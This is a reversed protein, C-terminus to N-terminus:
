SPFCRLSLYICICHTRRFRAVLASAIRTGHTFGLLLQLCEDRKWCGPAIMESLFSIQIWWFEFLFRRLDFQLFIYAGSALLNLCDALNANPFRSNSFNQLKKELNSAILWNENRVIRCRFDVIPSESFDGRASRTKCSLESRAFIRCDPSLLRRSRAQARVAGVRLCRRWELM